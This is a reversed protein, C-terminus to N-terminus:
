KVHVLHVCHLILTNKVINLYTNRPVLSFYHVICFFTNCLTRSCTFMCLCVYMCAFFCVRTYLIHMSVHLFPCFVMSINSNCMSYYSIPNFIVNKKLNFVRSWIPITKSHNHIFKWRNLLGKIYVYIDDLPTTKPFFLSPVRM